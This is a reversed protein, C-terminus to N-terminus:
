RQALMPALVQWAMGAAFVLLLMGCLRDVWNRGRAGLRALLRGGGYALLLWWLASGCFVGLVMLVAERGAPAHGGALGAFVAIFSLITMPNTLTLALASSYAGLLRGGERANAALEAPPRRLTALGLYCLVVSGALALPTALATLWGILVGMGAAGVSAYLADATAAGLGTALGRAPGHRLTREICLLGIPGVPAAIALGIALAQM